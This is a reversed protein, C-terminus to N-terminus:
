KPLFERIKPYFDNIFRVGTSIAKEEDTDFILSVRVFAADTRRYLASNMIEHVKLAYESTLPRGKVVYWYFLVQNM